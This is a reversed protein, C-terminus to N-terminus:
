RDSRKKANRQKKTTRSRRYEGTAAPTRTSVRDQKTRKSASANKRITRSRPKAPTLAREMLGAPLDLERRLDLERSAMEGSDMEHDFGGLHLLGHLLLVKIETQLSHGHEIAQRQATDLSIALDGIEGAAAFAPAAPFSLVDTAKDMGRFQKNLSRIREDGTLLVSVEGPLGIAKAACSLFQSLERKRLTAGMPFKSPAPEIAIM